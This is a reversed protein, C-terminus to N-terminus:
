ASSSMSFRGAFNDGLAHALPRDRYFLEHGAHIGIRRDANGACGDELRCPRSPGRRSQRVIQAEVLDKVFVDDQERHSLAFESRRAELGVPLRFARRRGEM